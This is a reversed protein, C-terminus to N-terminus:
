LTVRYKDWKSDVWDEMDMYRYDYCWNCEKCSTIKEGKNFRNRHEKRLHEMNPSNWINNFGESWHGFTYKEQGNLHDCFGIRGRANIYIYSFPHICLKDVSSRIVFEPLLSSSLELKLNNEGAIKKLKVISKKVADEHFILRDPHNEDLFIPEFKFRNVNLDIGLRVIETLVNINKGSVTICFYVYDDPDHGHSELAAVFREINATVQDLRAGGRLKKFLEKTPADISFGVTVGAKALREWLNPRSITGNSILKKRLPYRKAIELYKFFNPLITSEGWGRLDVFKAYPFLTEAIEEFLSVALLDGKISNCRCMPCKLNCGDTLEVYIASPFNKESHSKHMSNNQMKKELYPLLKLIRTPYLGLKPKWRGRTTIVKLIFALVEKPVFFDTATQPWWGLANM